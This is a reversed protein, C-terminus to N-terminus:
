QLAQISSIPLAEMQQDMNFIWRIWIYVNSLYHVSISVVHIEFNQGHLKTKPCVCFFLATDFTILFHIDQRVSCSMCQRYRSSDVKRMRESCDKLTHTYPWAVYGCPLWTILACCALVCIVGFSEGREFLVCRVYNCFSYLVCSVIFVVWIFYLWGHLLGTPVRVDSMMCLRLSCCSVLTVTWGIRWVCRVSYTYM